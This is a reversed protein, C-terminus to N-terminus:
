SSLYLARLWLCLANGAESVGQLKRPSCEEDEYYEKLYQIQEPSLDESRVSVLQAIKDNQNGEYMFFRHLSRFYNESSSSSSIPPLHLIICVKKCTQELCYPPRHISKRGSINSQRSITAGDIKQISKLHFQFVNTQTNLYLM